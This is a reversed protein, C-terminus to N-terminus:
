RKKINALKNINDGFQKHIRFLKSKHIINKNGALGAM